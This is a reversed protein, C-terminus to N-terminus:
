QEQNLLDSHEYINGIVEVNGEIMESYLYEDTVYAGNIKFSYEYGNCGIDYVGWKVDDMMFIRGSKEYRICVIDGEYIEVGNKDKLGTYQMYIIRGSNSWFGYNEFDHTGTYDEIMYGGKETTTDFEWARFKIERSM